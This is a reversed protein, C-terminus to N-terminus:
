EMRPRPLGDGQFMEDYGGSTRYAITAMPTSRLLLLRLLLRSGDSTLLSCAAAGPLPPPLRFAAFLRFELGRREIEVRRKAWCTLLRQSIAPCENLPVHLHLSGRRNRVPLDICRVVVARDLDAAAVM